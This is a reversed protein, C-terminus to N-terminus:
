ENKKRCIKLTDYIIVGDNRLQLFPSHNDLCIVCMHKRIPQITRSLIGTEMKIVSYFHSHENKQEDHLANYLFVKHHCWDCKIYVPYPVSSHKELSM